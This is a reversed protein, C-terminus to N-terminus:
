SPPRPMPSSPPPEFVYAYSYAKRNSAGVSALMTDHRGTLYGVYRAV